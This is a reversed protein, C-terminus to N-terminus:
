KKIKLKGNKVELKGELVLEEQAMDRMKEQTMVAIDRQEQKEAEILREAAIRDKREQSEIIVKTMQVQIGNKKVLTETEVLSGEGDIWQVTGAMAIGCMLLVMLSLVVMAKM